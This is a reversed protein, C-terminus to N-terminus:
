NGSFQVPQLNGQFEEIKSKRKIKEEPPISDCAMLYEFFFSFILMISFSFIWMLEYEAYNSIDQFCYAIFIFISNFVYGKRDSIREQLFRCPNPSGQPFTVLFYYNMIEKQFLIKLCFSFGSIAVFLSCFFVWFDTGTKMIQILIFTFFFFWSIHAIMNSHYAWYLNNKEWKVETWWCIMTLFDILRQDFKNLM